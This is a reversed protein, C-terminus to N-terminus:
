KPLKAILADLKAELADMQAKGAQAASTLELDIVKQAAQKLWVPAEPDAVVNKALWKDMKEEKKGSKFLAILGVVLALAAVALGIITLDM